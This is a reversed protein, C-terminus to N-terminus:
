PLVQVLGRRSAVDMSRIVYLGQPLSSLSGGGGCLTVKAM